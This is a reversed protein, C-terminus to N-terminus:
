YKHLLLDISYDIKLLQKDDINDLRTFIRLRDTNILKGDKNCHRKIKGKAWFIDQLQKYTGDIMLFPHDGTAKIKYGNTLELEYVDSIKAFECSKAIKVELKNTKINYSYVYFNEKDILEKIPIGKPYKKLDRPMEILTDDTLCGKDATLLIMSDYNALNRYMLYEVFGKFMRTSEGKSSTYSQADGVYQNFNNYYEDFMLMIEHNSLFQKDQFKHKLINNIVRITAYSLAM